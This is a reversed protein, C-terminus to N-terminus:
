RQKALKPDNKKLMEATKEDVLAMQLWSHGWQQLIMGSFADDASEVAKAMQDVITTKSPLQVLVSIAAEANDPNLMVWQETPAVEHLRKLLPLVVDRDVTTTEDKDFFQGQKEFFPIAETKEFQSLLRERVMRDAINKYDRGCGMACLSLGLSVLLFCRM